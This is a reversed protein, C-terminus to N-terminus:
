RSRREAVTVRCTTTTGSERKRQHWVVGVWVVVCLRVAGGDDWREDGVEM